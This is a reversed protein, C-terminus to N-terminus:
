RAQSRTLVQFGHAELRPVVSSLLLANQFVSGSLAVTALGHRGRLLLCADEIVRAVGHHFRAAIVPREVGAVLDEFAARVLDSGRAAFTADAALGDPLPRAERSPPRYPGLPALYAGDAAALGAASGAAGAALQELEITAQGEYSTEDRVGLLAAVADFLPGAASSLPANVGRRAMSLVAPWSAANRDRVALVGAPLADSDLGSADLYAAALRWPQRLAAAGGPLPVPALHGERTFSAYDAVLFEGGRLMDDPGDGTGDFAVGIVREGPPGPWGNGALCSAIRAHQYRLGALEAEPAAAQRLVPNPPHPVTAMIREPYFPNL